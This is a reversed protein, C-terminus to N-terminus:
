SKSQLPVYKQQMRLAGIDQQQIAKMMTERMTFLDEEKLYYYIPRYKHRFNITFKNSNSQTFIRDPNYRDRLHNALDTGDQEIRFLKILSEIDENFVIGTEDDSSKDDIFYPSNHMAYFAANAM